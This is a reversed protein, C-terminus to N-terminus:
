QSVLQGNIKRIREYMATVTLDTSRKDPNYPYTKRMLEEFAYDFVDTGNSGNLSCKMMSLWLYSNHTASMCELLYSNHTANHIVAM